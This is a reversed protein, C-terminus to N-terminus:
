GLHLPAINIPAKVAYLTVSCVDLEREPSRDAIARPDSTEIINVMM